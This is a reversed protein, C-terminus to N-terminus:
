TILSFNIHIFNPVKIELQRLITIFLIIPPMMTPNSFEVGGTVPKIGPAPMFNKDYLFGREM